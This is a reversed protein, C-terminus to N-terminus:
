GFVLDNDEVARLLRQTNRATEESAKATREGASDGVALQGIAAANFSGTVDLKQQAAEVTAPAQNLRDMLSALDPLEPTAPTTADPGAAPTRVKASVKAREERAQALSADLEARAKEVGADRSIVTDALDQAIGQKVAQREADLNALDQQRSQSRQTRRDDVAQNKTTTQQEVALSLGQDALGIMELLKALKGSIWGVATNWMKTIGSVVWDWADAIGYVVTWFLDQVGYWTSAFIQAFGAIAADWLNLLFSTGREWALKLFNWAIQAALGLDGAALADAMGGWAATADDALATFGDGLMGLAAQGTTTQTLLVAGLAVVAAIIAGVPSILAMLATNLVYFVATVGSVISALAGFGAAVGSAALGLTILGGGVGVLVAGTLALGTVLGQNRDIWERLGVLFTTVSTAISLLAPALASGIATTLGGLSATVRDWADALAGAAEAQGASMSAGLRRAESRLSELDQIVPLLRTGSKGFVAMAAAARATPDPIRRLAEAVALFQQEPTLAKLRDASLGLADFAARTQDSAGLVSALTRTLATTASAAAALATADPASPAAGSPAAPSAPAAPASRGGGVAALATQLRRADGALPLLQQGATGLVAVALAAQKGADPIRALAAAVAQVAGAPGAAALDEATLGLAALAAIAAPADAGVDGLRKQLIRVAGEVDELSAGSLGAAYGLESLTQIPVGTRQAMETLADGTEAFRKTALALPALIAAGVAAVQTGMTRVSAGFAQLRRQASRLGAALRSDDASLEVYARGARIGGANAM